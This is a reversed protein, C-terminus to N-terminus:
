ALPHREPALEAILRDCSDSAPRSNRSRSISTPRIRRRSTAPGACSPRGDAREPVHGAETGYSVVHTGNDGTLRRVLREAQGTPKRPWGTCRPASSSTSAPRRRSRRMRPEIMTASMPRSARRTTWPIKPRSPGSRRSSSPVRRRRHQRGDRGPDHRLAADHLAARVPEHPDARRRNEAMRTTTGPRGAAGRGDVASVGIDIRSSHVAHGRVTTFWSVSARTAPSWADHADARRRDRRLADPHAAGDGGGHVARGPLRGGRRLVPRPPGAAEARGDLMEPVLPSPSRM